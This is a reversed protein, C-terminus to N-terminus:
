IYQGKNRTARATGGKEAQGVIASSPRPVSIV